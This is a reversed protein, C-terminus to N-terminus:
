TKLYKVQRRGDIRDLYISVAEYRRNAKVSRRAFKSFCLLPWRTRYLKYVYRFTYVVTLFFLM